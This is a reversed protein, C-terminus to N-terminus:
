RELRSHRTELVAAFTLHTKESLLSKRGGLPSNAELPTARRPPYKELRRQWCGQVTDRSDHGDLGESHSRSYDMGLGGDSTGRAIPSASPETVISM